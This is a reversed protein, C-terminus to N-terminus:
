LQGGTAGLERVFSIYFVPYKVRVLSAPLWEDSEPGAGQYRVRLQQQRRYTRASLVKAPAAERHPKAPTLFSVHFVDHSTWTAPTDLQYAVPNIQRTIQFPGSRRCALKGGRRDEPLGTREVFVWDGVSLTLPTRGKDYHEKMSQQARAISNRAAEVAANIGSLFDETAAPVRLSPPESDLALTAPTHPHQGTLLYFPTFGTSRNVSNNIEFELIYLYDEWLHQRSEDGCYARLMEELTRNMRETQGDTQPHYGSSMSLRTGLKAFLARWFEATFRPDRDSVISKPLGHLRFFEKIFLAATDEATMDMNCPVFHVGKSLRDVIVLVSEHGTSPSVPLHTIFDMSIDDWRRSPIELPELLGYPKVNRPKTRQCTLCSNVYDRVDKGMRPWWYVRAVADHTRKIGQHGSYPAEHYEHLLFQKLELDNPICIRGHFYYLGHRQDFTATNSKLKFYLDNGYGAIIRKKLAADIEITAIHMHALEVFANETISLFRLGAITLNAMAHYSLRSLPDAPNTAGPSYLVDFNFEQLDSIWRIRRANKLEPQQLLHRLTAHDTLVEFYDGLLYCRWKMLARHIALLEKDYTSYNRQADDLKKSDYVVPHWGDDYQQFLCAGTAFNSADTVVRTEREPDFIRLVPASILAQKLSDFARREEEGWRWEVKPSQLRTLPAAKDSLHEIFDRYHNLFGTFSRVESPNTPETWDRVSCIAGEDIRVKGGGIIFGLFKIEPKGFSCKHPKCYLGFEALRSFVKELHELHEEWSNSYISVDDIYVVVFQGIFEQLVTDMMKQFTAPANCLGFPMVTWEYQGQPTVFATKHIDEDAVPIQWFGSALDLSTFVTAKYLRDICDETRPLPYKNKVTQKNLVRYDICMRLGGDKKRAFLVPAGWPSSASRIRGAAILDALQLQLEEAEPRSLRYPYRCFPETSEKLVIRHKFDHSPNGEPLREPFVHAYKDVLQRIEPPIDSPLHSASTEKGVRQAFDEKPRLFALWAEVTDQENIAYEFADASLWQLNPTNSVEGGRYAKFTYNPGHTCRTTVTNNHWDLDPNYQQFWPVGLIVDAKAPMPIVTCEWTKKLVGQKARLKLCISVSGIPTCFRDDGMRVRFSVPTTRLGLITVLRESIFNGVWGEAGTDLFANCQHGNVTAKLTFGRSDDALAQAIRAFPDPINISNSCAVADDDGDAPPDVRDGLLPRAPLPPVHLQQNSPVPGPPCYFVLVPWRTPGLRERRTPKGNIRPAPKTFLVTGRPFYRIVDMGQFYQFWEKNSWDPVMFAGSTSPDAAKEALFHEMIATLQDEDLFPLNAWIRLGRLNACQAPKELSCFQTCHSNFGYRDCCLDIDFGGVDSAISNFYSSLLQRDNVDDSPELIRAKQLSVIDATSLQVAGLNHTEFSDVNSEDLRQPRRAKLRSFANLQATRAPSDFPVPADDPVSNSTQQSQSRTSDEDHGVVGLSTTNLKGSDWEEQDTGGAEHAEM